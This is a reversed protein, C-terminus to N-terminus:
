PTLTSTTDLTFTRREVTGPSGLPASESGNFSLQVAGANGSMIVLETKATWTEESGATLIGEYVEEGDATVRLWSDGTLTIKVTIPETLPLPAPDAEKEPLTDATEASSDPETPTDSDALNLRPRNGGQGVVAWIAGGAIALLILGGILWGLGSGSWSRRNGSDAPAIVKLQHRDQQSVVGDMGGGNAQTPDPLVAVLTSEFQKAIDRGELGLADAYRRIFGQIFVPEPLEEGDGTELAKLLAPRIFIQTAVEDLARGQEKRVSQLYLGLSSLQEQQAATLKSM